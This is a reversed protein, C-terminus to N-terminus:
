VDIVEIIAVGRCNGASGLAELELGINSPTTGWGEKFYPFHINKGNPVMRNTYNSADTGQVEVTSITTPQMVSLALLRVGKGVGPAAKLTQFNGFAVDVKVAEEAM